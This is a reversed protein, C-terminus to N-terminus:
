EQWRHFVPIAGTELRGGSSALILKTLPALWRIARDDGSYWQVVENSLFPEAKGENNTVM